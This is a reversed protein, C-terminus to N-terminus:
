DTLKDFIETLKKIHVSDTGDQITWIWTLVSQVFGWQAIRKPDVKLMVGFMEIRAALIEQADSLAVLQPTPNRLFPGVDYLWEGRFGKPDIAVFSNGHQIVNDQHLDGHLVVEKLSTALLHKKIRRAKTLYYEPIDWKKDIVNMVDKLHPFLENDAESRLPNASAQHLANLIQSVIYMSSNEQFPFYEKLCSGPRAREILVADEQYAILPIMGYGQFHKLAEVERKLEDRCLTLKLVVPLTNRVGMMVYNYSLNSVVELDTVNWEQAVEKIRNPLAQLWQVGKDGNLSIIHNEFDTM